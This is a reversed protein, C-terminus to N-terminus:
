LVDYLAIADASPPRTYFLCGRLTNRISLTEERTLLIQVLRQVLLSAFAIDEM